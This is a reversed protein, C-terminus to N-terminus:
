LRVEQLIRDSIERPMDDISKRTSGGTKSAKNTDNQEGMASVEKKEATAPFVETQAALPNLADSLVQTVSSVIDEANRRGNMSVEGPEGDQPLPAILEPGSVRDTMDELGAQIESSPILVFESRSLSTYTDTTAEQKIEEPVIEVPPKGIEGVHESM